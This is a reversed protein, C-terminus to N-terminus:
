NAHFFVQDAAVDVGIRSLITVCEPDGPESMCGPGTGPTNKTLDSTALVDAIDAVIKGGDSLEGELEYTVQNPAACPMLPPAAPNDGACSAGLHLFFPNIGGESSPSSGDVKLFKYGSLWTWYMGTVDLPPAAASLDIFNENLPVGLTFRVATFDDGKATGKVTTNTEPSGDPGCGDEFDLLAIGNGQFPTDESLSLPHARGSDDVLEFGHLYLRADTLTFDTEPTGLNPYTSGCEFSEGNVQFEFELTIAREEQDDGCASTFAGLVAAACLLHKSNKLM